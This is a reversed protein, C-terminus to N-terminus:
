RPAIEYRLTVTARATLDGPEIQTPVAAALAMRPAGALLSVPRPVNGDPAIATLRVLRVGAAAALTRAQDQADALAATLAARRAAAPDRLQFSVGNVGTIGAAVGADVIPGALETRDVTVTVTREVIYGYRAAQRPDPQPPAPNYSIGYATTAIAAPAIGLKTLADHLANTVTTNEATARTAQPAISEIRLAVAVRDPIRTVSGEGSVTLTAPGLAPSAPAAGAPVAGALLAVVLVAITRVNM